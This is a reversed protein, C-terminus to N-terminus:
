VIINRVKVSDSTNSVRMFDEHMVLLEEHAPIFRDMILGRCAENLCNKIISVERRNFGVVFRDPTRLKIKM